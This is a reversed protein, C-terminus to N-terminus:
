PAARVAVPSRMALSNGTNTVMAGGRQENVGLVQNVHPPPLTVRAGTDGTGADSRSEAFEIRTPEPM